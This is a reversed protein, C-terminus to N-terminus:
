QLNCKKIKSNEIRDTIIILLITSVIMGALVDTVFHAGLYVRSIGVMIIISIMFISLISKIYNNMKSQNIYYILMGFMMTAAMTHGSPFSYSHEVVLKTVDPRERAIIIKLLNNVLTSTILAICINFGYWKNKLVIFSILLIACLGVIFKTSGLFTIFMFISTKKDTINGAILNYFYNDIGTSNGTLVLVLISLFLILLFACILYKKKM